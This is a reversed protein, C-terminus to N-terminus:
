ADGSGGEEQPLYDPLQKWDDHDERRSAPLDDDAFQVTKGGITDSAAPEFTFYPPYLWFPLAGTQGNKHKMLNVIVPRKHKTAKPEQEDMEKRKRPDVYLFIVKSADQEIAGSDRLDSLQPERDEKEVSRSLQSLVLVPIGLEFSLAKLKMSVYTVRAVTDWETRGMEEARILQIYDVTLMGINHRRKMARGYACIASIDRDRDNIFLPASNLEDAATLANALQDKRGFGFKLKPLSVGAKRCLARELLEERSSDLTCRAMAKGNMALYCCVQDEFTTKGASPRGALITLGTEFGSMLYTLKGWPTFLGIAPKKKESAQRWREISSVMLHGNTREDQNSVYGDLFRGPLQSVFETANTASYAASIADRCQSIADRLMAKDRVIAMYFEAHTETPTSEIIRGLEATGGIQDLKGATKCWNALTLMDIATGSRSLEVIGEWLVRCAPTYFAEPTLRYKGIAMDLTKDWALLVCGIVGKEAEESQPPAFKVDSTM